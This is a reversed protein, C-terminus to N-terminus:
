NYGWYRGTGTNPVVSPGYLTGSNPLGPQGVTADDPQEPPQAPSGPGTIGYSRPDGSCAALCLLLLVSAIRMLM